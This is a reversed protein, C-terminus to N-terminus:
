STVEEDNMLHRWQLSEAGATHQCLLPIGKGNEEFYVRYEVGQVTIYVYKGTIAEFRAM